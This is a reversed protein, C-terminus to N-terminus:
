IREGFEYWSSHCVHTLTFLIGSLLDAGSSHGMSLITDLARYLAPFQARNLADALSCVAEPFYGAAAVELFRASIDNTNHLHKPLELQLAQLYSGTGPFERLAYLGALVGCLWDDGSPTLGGGLGIIRCAAQAFLRSDEAASRVHCCIRQAAAEWLNCPQCHELVVGAFGRQLAPVTHSQQLLLGAAEKGFPQLCLVARHACAADYRWRGLTLHAGDWHVEDGPQVAPLPTGAPLSFAIPTRSIDSSQLSFLQGELYFNM